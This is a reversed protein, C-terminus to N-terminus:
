ASAQPSTCANGLVPRLRLLYFFLSVACKKPDSTHCYGESEVMLSNLFLNLAYAIGPIDDLASAHTYPWTVAPPKGLPRTVTELSFKSAESPLSTLDTAATSASASIATRSSSSSDTFPSPPSSHHGGNLFATDALTYNAQATDM